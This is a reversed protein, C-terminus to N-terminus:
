MANLLKLEIFNDIPMFPIIKKYYGEEDIDQVASEDFENPFLQALHSNVTQALFSEFEEVVANWENLSRGLAALATPTKVQRVLDEPTLTEENDGPIADEYDYEEKSVFFSTFGETSSFISTTPIKPHEPRTRKFSKNCRQSGFFMAQSNSNAYHMLNMKKSIVEHDLIIDFKYIPRIIDPIRKVLEPPNKNLSVQTSITSTSSSGLYSSLSSSTESDSTVPSEVLTDFSPKSSLLSPSSSGSRLSRSGTLFSNFSKSGRGSSISNGRVLRDNGLSPPAVALLGDDADDNSLLKFFKSFSNILSNNRTSKGASAKKDIQSPNEISMLNCTYVAEDLIEYPNSKRLDSLRSTSIVSALPVVEETGNRYSNVPIIGLKRNVMPMDSSFDLQKLRLPLDQSELVRMLFSYIVDVKTKIRHTTLLAVSSDYNNFGIVRWSILRMYYSRVLPNWHTFYQLWIDNSTLWNAFNEKYSESNNVLWGALHDEKETAVTLSLQSPISNWINFLFAFTTTMSQILNTRSLTLYSCGLWFEWKIESPDTVYNSFEHVLNFISASRGVDYVSSKSALGIMILDLSKNIEGVFPTDSYGIDRATKFLKIIPAFNGNTPSEVAINSFAPANTGPSLKAVPYRKSPGSNATAFLIKNVCVKFIHFINSDIIHFGPFAEIPVQLLDGVFFSAINIYHRYFSNFIDSDHCNWYHVWPGNPDSIGRVPHKPPPVCNITKRRFRDLGRIGQFDIFKHIHQPFIDKAAKVKDAPITDHRDLTCELNAQKINLLFLLAQSVGPVFFFAYSFTKGVFASISVPVVKMTSIKGIAYALTETLRNTYTSIIDPGALFWEKRCLIRSLCELYANRDTHSVQQTQGTASLVSLLLSWWRGLITVSVSAFSNYILLKKEFMYELQSLLRLFPLLTTRLMNTKLVGNPKSEFKGLAFELRKFQKLLSKVLREHELAAVENQLQSPSSRNTELGRPTFAPSPYVVSSASAKFHLKNSM